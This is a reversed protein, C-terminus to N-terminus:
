HKIECREKKLQSLLHITEMITNLWVDRDGGDEIEKKVYEAIVLMSTFLVDTPSYKNEECIAVMDKMVRKASKMHEMVEYRYKELEKDEIM